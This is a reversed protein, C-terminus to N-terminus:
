KPMGELMYRVMEEAQTYDLLNTGTIWWQVNPAYNPRTVTVGNDPNFNKPLEWQLFRNVMYKIQDESM